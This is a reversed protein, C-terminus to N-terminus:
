YYYYYFFDKLGHAGDLNLCGPNLDQSQWKNAWHGQFIKKAEGYKLKEMQLNDTIM